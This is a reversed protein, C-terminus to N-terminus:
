PKPSLLAERAEAEIGAADLRYHAYLRTPPGILSYQDRIGHRHLRAPIGHETLVEAVAGGLGGLTNHEEVTMLKRSRQAAKLVADEDLPKITHMDLVGVSHGDANLRAAAELTPHVMSGTAILTLDDGTSHEIAKGVELTTGAPYVDPDRGRGIRFYVPGPHDVTARLAATLAATDAPAIVTLGAISRTVALDETAHHSTGYFGLTIGTHHGILRVPQQTYAVDTRIQECALLAMFSAFTAVYPKLGTTALGAATSVMHQESIGFQIYKDPHREQFRVLGNSYKLDATGVVVPHGEDALDALTGGLAQLGPAQELLSVLHWSEPQLGPAVSM